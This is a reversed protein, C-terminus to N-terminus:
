GVAETAEEASAEETEAEETVAEETEAEEVADDAEAAGAEEASPQVWVAHDILWQRVKQLLVQSKISDEDAGEAELDTKLEDVTDYGYDKALDEYYAEVDEDAAEINEQDAIKLLAVTQKEFEEAQASLETKLSDEDMGFAELFTKYEMGYMSAMSEYYAVADAVDKEVKEPDVKLVETGKMLASLLEDERATEFAERATDELEKRVSARYDEVNESETNEKVWEDNLEPFIEDGCIYNLTIAFVAKKGALEDSYYDAPFEVEVDKTEGPKMGIIGKEFDELYSGEGIVVESDEASGGEFEEGDITGVYNINVIDGEKAEGELVQEYTVYYSLTTEIEEDVDADTVDDLEASFTLGDYKGLRIEDDEYIYGANEEAMVLCSGAAAMVAAATLGAMVKAGFFRRTDM